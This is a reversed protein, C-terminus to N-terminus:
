WAILERAEDVNLALPKEVFVHKGALIAERAILLHTEAPTAVVIGQIDNDTLVDSLALATCVDPYQKRFQALIFEDKDCISQLAGLAHFNRVLNKGWYGAGITAVSAAQIDEYNAM